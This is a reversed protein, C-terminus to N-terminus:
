NDENLCGFNVDFTFSHSASNYKSQVASGKDKMNSWPSCHPEYYCSPPWKKNEHVTLNVAKSLYQSIQYIQSSLCSKFKMEQEDPM